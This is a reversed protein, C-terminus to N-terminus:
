NFTARINFLSLRAKGEYITKMLTEVWQKAHPTSSEQVIGEFVHLRFNKGNRKAIYPVSLTRTNPDFSARLIQRLPVTSIIHIQTAPILLLKVQFQELPSFPTM